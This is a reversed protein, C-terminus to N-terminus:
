RFFVREVTWALSAVSGLVSLVDLWGIDTDLRTEVVLVDENQLAPPTNADHLLQELSAEYIKQRRGAAQERFLRMTIDAEQNEQLAQVPAGGAMTLLKDLPTNEPVEYIGSQPVTGWVSVQITPEGPRAHYFYAVNSNTEEIRNYTTQAGARSTLLLPSALLAVLLVLRLPPSSLM